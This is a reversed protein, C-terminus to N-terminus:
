SKSKPQTHKAAKKRVTKKKYKLYIASLGPLTLTISNDYGHMPIRKSTVQTKTGRDRGGFVADDSNLIVQYVGDKEVGFSYNEREVVTFNCVCVIENGAKDMRRFAIVSNDKDDSVCWAFGEWSYDIEWLAPYKQYLRNLTRFYTQLQRHKEAM